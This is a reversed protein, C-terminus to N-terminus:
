FHRVFLFNQNVNSFIPLYNASSVSIRLHFCLLPRIDPQILRLIELFDDPTMRMIERYGPTDEIMLEQQVIRNFYGKEKRRRIWGRTEGRRSERKGM